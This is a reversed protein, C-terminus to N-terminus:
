HMYYTNNSNGIKTNRELAMKVKIGLSAVALQALYACGACVNARALDANLLDALLVMGPPKSALCSLVVRTQVLLSGLCVLLFSARGPHFRGDYGVFDEYSVSDTASRNLDNM